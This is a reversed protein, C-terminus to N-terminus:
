VNASGDVLFYHDSLILLVCEDSVRSVLVLANKFKIIWDLMTNNLVPVIHLLEPSVHEVLQLHRRLLVRDQQRLRWEVWVAIADFGCVDEKLLEASGLDEELLLGDQAQIGTTLCGSDDKVATITHAMAAWDEFAEGDVIGDLSNVKTAPIHGLVQLEQESSGAVDEMRRSLKFYHLPDLLQLAIHGHGDAEVEVVM